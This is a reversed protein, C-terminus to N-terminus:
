AKPSTSLSIDYVNFKSSNTFTIPGFNAELSELASIIFINLSKSSSPVPFIENLFIFFIDYSNPPYIKPESIFTITLHFDTQHHSLPSSELLQYLSPRVLIQLNIKDLLSSFSCHDKLPTQSLHLHNHLINFFFLKLNLITKIHILYIQM